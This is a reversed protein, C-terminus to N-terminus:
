ALLARVAAVIDERSPITAVELRDNYPMPVNRAAVRMVPADLYDLAQETVVAAVEAGFGGRKPAEHAVVLRGTKRVSELITAEDLPVLTRPDIVEVSIGEKELDSAAGLAKHVMLQTAVVTVDTGARKVDARGLPIAYEGEPVPGKMPYLMKHELFIVPNDDRIATALLGKADYPTSPAVVVLGPTHIFWAELSQSHQAALRIGGGQPGRIVLPVTPSGGLMYRFKAAQNVIQDMMLTVFDFIQVEVVPRMGAIAAGVGMGCFTPETIPTDRVREEGFAERLGRTVGFIGGILGVDEGMVFVRPDRGMELRLAENLAEVYTIERGSRVAPETVAVHPAYVAAEMMEVTPEPSESAWAIAAELEGEVRQRLEKLRIEGIGHEEVLRREVRAVPDRAMWELEEEKTRYEPLNARMSHNGWRYTMAEVLSPGGGARAREVAEGVAEYVARLDNGDVRVAPIGFAGARAAVGEGATTRTRATSLAYQNNECVMIFPLKWVATLNMAEYVVGQNSAGDGFFTVVVRDTGRLREALAAGAGLPVGAGVIGNCGLINLDLAAIHMSGGLGRCYGTERGLLEAMMRDLRAGKAICHGHGRHNGVISDDPRLHACVATAVAEEGVYSHATGKVIGENFLETTREDFRRIRVMMQYLRELSGQDLTKTTKM